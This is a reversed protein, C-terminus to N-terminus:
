GRGERAPKGAKNAGAGLRARMHQQDYDAPTSINGEIQM